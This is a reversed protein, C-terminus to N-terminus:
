LCRQQCNEIELNLDELLEIYYVLSFTLSTPNLLVGAMGYQMHPKTLRLPKLKLSQSELRLRGGHMVDCTELAELQTLIM